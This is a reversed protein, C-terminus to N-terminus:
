LLKTDTLIAEEGETERWLISVAKVSVGGLAMTGAVVNGGLEVNDFGVGAMLGKWSAAMATQSVHHRENVRGMGAGDSMEVASFVEFLLLHSTTVGSGISNSKQKFSADYKGFIINGPHLDHHTLGIPYIQALVIRVNYIDGWLSTQPATNFKEELSGGTEFDMVILYNDSGKQRSLGITSVFDQTSNRLTIVTSLVALEGVMFKDITKLAFVADHIYGSRAKYSKITGKMVTSFGGQGVHEVNVFNQFPIWALYEVLQMLDVDKLHEILQDDYPFQSKLHRIRMQETEPLEHFPVLLSLAEQIRVASTNRSSALSNLSM